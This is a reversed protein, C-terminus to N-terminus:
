VSGRVNSLEENCKKFQEELLKKDPEIKRIHKMENDFQEAVNLFQKSCTEYVEKNEQNTSQIGELPFSFHILEFNAKSWHHDIKLPPHSPTSVCRLM